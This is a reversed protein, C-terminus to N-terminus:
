PPPLRPALFLNQLRQSHNQPFHTQLDHPFTPFLHSHVYVWFTMMVLSALQQNDIGMKRMDSELTQVLWSCEPREQTPLQFYKLLANDVINKATQMDRAYFSPVRYVLKWSTLDFDHIAELINPEIEIIKEGLFAKTAAFLLVEKCWGILSVVKTDLTAEQVYKESLKQWHLSDDIARFFPEQAVDLKDGPHLQLKYYDHARDIFSKPPSSGSEDKPPVEFM